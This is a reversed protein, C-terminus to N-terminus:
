ADSELKEAPMPILAWIRKVEAMSLRAAGNVIRGLEFHVCKLAEALEQAQDPKELEEVTAALVSEDEKRCEVEHELSSVKERLDSVLKERGENDAKAEGLQKKLTDSHDREAQLADLAIELEEGNVKALARWHARSQAYQEAAHCRDALERKLAKERKSVKPLITLKIAAAAIMSRDEGTMAEDLKQSILVETIPAGLYNEVEDALNLIAKASLKM